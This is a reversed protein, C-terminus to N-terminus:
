GGGGGGGGGGVCVCVGVWGWSWCEISGGWFLCRDVILLFYVSENRVDQLCLLYESSHISWVM